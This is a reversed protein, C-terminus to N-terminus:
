GEHMIGGMGQCCFHGAPFRPGFDEDSRFEHEDDSREDDGPQDLVAFYLGLPEAGAEGCFEHATETGALRPEIGQVRLYNAVEGPVAPESEGGAKKGGAFTGAGGAEGALACGIKGFAELILDPVEFFLSGFGRVLVVEPM